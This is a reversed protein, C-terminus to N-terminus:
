ARARPRRALVAATLALLAALPAGADVTACGLGGRGWAVSADGGVCDNDRGDAVVEDADPNVAANADDCDDAAAASGAPDCTEFPSGTGHGDGDADAYRTLLLGEDTDADCDDDIGNCAESADPSVAADADDCDTADMSWAGATPDPCVLAFPAAPDGHGDGDADSWVQVGDHIDPDTDDCDGARSAMGEGTWPCTLASRAAPDGYTDGDADTYVPIGPYLSADDPVCDEDDSVGDGDTDAPAPASLYVNVQGNGARAEPVGVVLETKGDGDIDPLASVAAGFAESASGSWTLSPESAITARGQEDATVEWVAVLGDDPMGLVLDPAEDGVMDAAILVDGTISTSEPVAYGSLPTTLLAENGYSDFSQFHLTGTTDLLAVWAGAAGAVSGVADQHSVSTISFAQSAGSGDASVTDCTEISPLGTTDWWSVSTKSSESSPSVIVVKDKGAAPFESAVFVSDGFDEVSSMCGIPGTRTDYLRVKATATAADVYRLVALPVGDVTVGGHIRAGSASASGVLDSIPVRWATSTGEYVSMSRGQEYVILVDGGAGYSGLDSFTGLLATRATRGNGSGTQEVSPPATAELFRFVRYGDETGAYIEHLGDGDLDAGADLWRGLGYTRTTDTLILPDAHALLALSLLM